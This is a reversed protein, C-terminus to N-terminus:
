ASVQRGYGHEIAYKVLLERKHINTKMMISAIYHYVTALRIHLTKGIDEYTHHEALLDLIERERQTIPGIGRMSSMSNLNRM